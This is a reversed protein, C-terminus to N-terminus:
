TEGSLKRRVGNGRKARTPEKMSDVTYIDRVVDLSTASQVQNEEYPIFITDAYEHFTGVSTRLRSSLAGDMVKYDHTM